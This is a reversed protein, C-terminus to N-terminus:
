PATLLGTTADIMGSLGLRDRYLNGTGHRRLHRISRTEVDIMTRLDDVDVHAARCLLDAIDHCAGRQQLVLAQNSLNKIRNDTCDVHRHGQLNAGAPIRFVPVSQGNCPDRLLGADLGQRYVPAGTGAGVPTLGLM